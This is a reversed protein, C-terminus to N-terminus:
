QQAPPEPATWDFKAFLIQTRGGPPEAAPELGRGGLATFVAPVYARTEAPLWARAQWFDRGGARALAAEVRQEGANYAALALPWDGFQARLDALYRAAARTSRALDTREDRAPGVTLGYRRATAPMLQWAGRAGQRSLAQANFRSEVWGVALLEASVGEEELITALWDRVAPALRRQWAPPASDQRLPSVAPPVVNGARVLASEAARVREAYLRELAAEAPAQAVAPLAGALLLGVCLLFRPM